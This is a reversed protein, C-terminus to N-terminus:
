RAGAVVRPRPGRGHRATAAATVARAAYWGGSVFRQVPGFSWAAPAGLLHLRPVTVSELGRRLIPYGDACRLEAALEPALFPYRRVDVRYGTGFMLHDAEHRSGDDLTFRVRDGVPAAAVVTRGYHLVVDELKVRVAHSCAPRVSRYAVTEQAGRPLRRFLGPTAVLRSYWAPGVDTPAYILPGLPGLHNIPSRDRPRLWRVHDDRVFVEVQAGAEAMLAASGLASQGGGVVAVHRGAFAAPEAHRGTHSVLEPPLDRFARPLWEFDEIGAAVVVRRATVRADDGLALAFAGDRRRQLRRVRRTDAGGAAERAFWEGYAIFRDLPVPVGFDEGTHAQFSRLSFPGSPEGINSASWNSRLTMGRPLGHWFAMPRGFAQVDVRARRLHLATALGSPGAGIVAVEIDPVASAM